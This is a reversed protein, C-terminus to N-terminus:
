GGPAKPKDVYLRKAPDPEVYPHELTAKFEDAEAQALNERKGRQYKLYALIATAITVLGGIIAGISAPDM